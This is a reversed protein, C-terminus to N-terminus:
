SPAANEKLIYAVVAGLLIIVWTVYVWVFFIPITALAGYILTYTPFAVIYYSFIHKAFEFLLMAVFGGFLAHKLLVKCNPLAMYLLTFAFWTLLTPFLFIMSAQGELTKAAGSIYPLSILYNSVAFGVGILIPLLTLVAWYILFAVVGHRREKVKWIKNLSIEMTFIMMVATFLLFFLGTISLRAAKEAFGKINNQIVDASAAVFHDFVFGQIKVAYTEFVPFASVIGLSVVMLPVISLLSTFSLAGAHTLCEEELFHNFVNKWFNYIRKLILLM